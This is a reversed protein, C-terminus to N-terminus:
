ALAERLAKAERLDLTDFGETFWSYLDTLMQHAELRRDRQQWLRCLSVVARLELSKAGQQRAVYLAQLFSEEAVEFREGEELLLEGRLRYVEAEYYREECAGIMALAEALVRMAAETQGGTKYAEALMVHYQLGSEKTGIARRSAIGQRLLEIGEEVSGREALAWGKRILGGTLWRIFGHERALGITEEIQEQVLWAERRWIHLSAAFHLASALTYPQSLQRALTLAEHSRRLAQDPYGLFWLARAAYSFCLVAPHWYSVSYSHHKQLAYHAIGRELHTLASAFEGAHWLNAGQESYAELLFAPVQMSQALKLLQKGLEQAIKLETRSRYFRQVGALAAFRQPSDGV